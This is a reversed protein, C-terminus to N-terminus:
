RGIVANAAGADNADCAAKLAAAQEDSAGATGYITYNPTMMYTSNNFVERSQEVGDVTVIKWLRAVKGEYGYSTTTQGFGVDASTKIADTPDTQSLVESEYSVTRHAVDRTEHGFVTFHISGDGATGYIYIPADTNNVFKLDKSGEAITADKSPDVYHVIMSHNFRETIQIEAQMLAQYLTTAVQCVGGGLSDVVEGNEYSPANYYGNEETFPVMMDQVSFEDGPYVVHGSVKQTGVMLNQIKGESGTYTTTGEGLVDKVLALQDASGKAAATETDLAVTADGGHWENAVYNVIKNIGDDTKVSVGDQSATVNFVGYSTMELGANVPAVNFQGAVRQEVISRVNDPNVAYKLQLTTPGNKKVDQERKFRQLVNGRQGVSLAQNIVDTNSYNIGLEGMTADAHNNGVTIHMVNSTLTNLKNQIADQIQAANMGEVNIDEIYVGSKATLSAAAAAAAAADADSTSTSTTAAGAQSTSSSAAAGDPATGDNAYVTTLGGATLVLAATLALMMKFKNTHKKM